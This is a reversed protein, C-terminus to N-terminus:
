ISPLSPLVTCVNKSKFSVSVVFSTKGAPTVSFKFSLVYVKSILSKNVNYGPIKGVCLTTTFTDARTVRSSSTWCAIVLLACRTYLM